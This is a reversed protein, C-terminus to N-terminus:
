QMVTNLKKSSIYVKLINDTSKTVNTKSKPCLKYPCFVLENIILIM